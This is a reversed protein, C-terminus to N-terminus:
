YILNQVQTLSPLHCCKEYGSAVCVCVCASRREQSNEHYEITPICHIIIEGLYNAHGTPAEFHTAEIEKRGQDKVLQSTTHINHM